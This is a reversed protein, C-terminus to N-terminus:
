NFILYKFIALFNVTFFILDIVHKEKIRDRVLVLLVLLPLVYWPMLWNYFALLLLGYSVASFGVMWKFSYKKQYISITLVVFYSVVFFIKGIIGSIKLGNEIGFKDLVLGLISVLPAAQFSYLTAHKFAQNMITEFGGSTKLLVLVELAITITFLLLMKVSKGKVNNKSFFYLFVFPLFFLTYYKVLVSMLLFIVGAINRKLNENNLLYLGLLFFVVGVIEMHANLLLEFVIYPNLLYLYLSTKYTTLNKILRLSLIYLSLFFLKFIFLNFFLSNGGIVSLFGGIVVFIPGYIHGFGSWLTQLQGFMPDNTMQSFPVTYPNANHLAFTRSIAIYGLIDDSGVPIFFLLIIGILIVVYTLKNSDPISKKNKYIYILYLVTLVALVLVWLLIIYLNASGDKNFFIGINIM